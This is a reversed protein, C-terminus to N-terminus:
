KHLTSSLQNIMSTKFEVGTPGVSLKTPRFIFTACQAWTLHSDFGSTFHYLFFVFLLFLVYSHRSFMCNFHKTYTNCVHLVFRQNIKYKSICRWMQKWGWATVWDWHLVQTPSVGFGNSSHDKGAEPLHGCEKDSCDKDPLSDSM